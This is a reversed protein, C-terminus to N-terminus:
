GKKASSPQVPKMFASKMGMFPFSSRGIQGIEDFDLFDEDGAQAGSIYYLLM